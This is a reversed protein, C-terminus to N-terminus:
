NKVLWDKALDLTDFTHLKRKSFMMVAEFLIKKLGAIGVVAAAKVFPKNHATFNKMEETVRDDFRANTVDTLTLVSQEPKTRIVKKSVEIVALAEDTRCDAFNLYLIERGEHTIFKVRDAVM